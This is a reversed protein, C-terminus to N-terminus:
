ISDLKQTVCKLNKKELEEKNDWDYPCNHGGKDNIEPFRHKNCYIIGCKCSWDVINLKINCNIYPCKKSTRSM